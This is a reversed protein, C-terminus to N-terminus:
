PRHVAVVPGTERYKGCVTPFLGRWAGTEPDSPRPDGALESFGALGYANKATAIHRYHNEAAVNVNPDAKAALVNLCDLSAAPRNGSGILRIARQYSFYSWAWQVMVVIRNRFGILNFIHVFLWFRIM